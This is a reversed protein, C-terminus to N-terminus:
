TKPPEPLPMWHTVGAPFGGNGVSGFAVIDQGEVVIESEARYVIVRKGYEPLRDEVSIWEM